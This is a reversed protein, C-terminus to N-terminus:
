FWIVYKIDDIIAELGVLPVGNKFLTTRNSILPFYTLQFYRGEAGSYSSYDSNLGDSGGGVAQTVVVEETSGEGVLAAIRTGGPISAGRSQTVIDTFVGPLVNNAGPINAM